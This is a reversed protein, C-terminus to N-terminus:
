QDSDFPELEADPSNATLIEIKQEADRLAQQCIRTLAIGREFSALSEELTLDGKEMSEVLTELEALAKEFPIAEETKKKAM